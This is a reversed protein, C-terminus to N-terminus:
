VAAGALRSLFSQLVQRALLRGSRWAGEVKGGNLWDGCLGLADEGRWACGHELAPETDAYRWRHAVWAQPARGGLQSFAHLLDAAVADVDHELHAESWQPSAHLLWIEPGGRGPKSSDRAIWRLPGGNVFAADFPLELPASFRLMLAWCGRMTASAALAALEPAPQELLPVSQPAPVALLVADFRQALWGHEASRLGWGDARREFQAITCQTKVDLTDAMFRAPATMRPLGVFREIALDPAHLSEDGLVQLRPTWVAAVGADVWRNVEARFDADRATFYQAGHDCQWDEGRRTSLRGAPGRSKDFVSVRMGATQLTTACSLGAIGAGIVAVHPPANM